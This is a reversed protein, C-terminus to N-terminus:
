LPPSSFLFATCSPWGLAPGVARRVSVGTSCTRGFSIDSAGGRAPFCALSCQLSTMRRLSPFLGRQRPPIALDGRTCRISLLGPALRTEASGRCANFNQFPCRSFCVLILSKGLSFLKSSLFFLDKGHRHVCMLRSTVHCLACAHIVSSLCSPVLLWCPNDDNSLLPLSSSPPV